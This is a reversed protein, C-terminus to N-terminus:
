EAGKSLIVTSKRIISDRYAYGRELVAIVTEEPADSYEASAVKHQRVNLHEGEFGLMQVESEELIDAIKSMIVEVHEFAHEGYVQSFQVLFGDLLDISEILGTLLKKERKAVTRLEKKNDDAEKIIDYIEETQLSMASTAKQLGSVSSTVRSINEQSLESQKRSLELHANSLETLPDALPLEQQNILKQLEAAFDM